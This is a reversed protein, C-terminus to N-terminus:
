TSASAIQSDLITQSSGSAMLSSEAGSPNSTNCTGRGVAVARLSATTQAENVALRDGDLGMRQLLCQAVRRKFTLQQSQVDARGARCIAGSDGDYISRRRGTQRREVVLQGIQEGLDTVDDVGILEDRTNVDVSTAVIRGRNQALQRRKQLRV